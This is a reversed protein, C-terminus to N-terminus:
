AGHAPRKGTDGIKETLLREINMHIDENDM